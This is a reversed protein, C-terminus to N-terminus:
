KNDLFFGTGLNTLALKGVSYVSDAVAKVFEMDHSALGIAKDTRAIEKVLKALNQVNEPDLASTPEDLLLIQPELALARAIAVRQQQGGSLQQPYNQDLERIGLQELLLLVKERAKKPELKKVVTLPQMCNQLVTLHNFLGNDQFVLGVSSAREQASLSLLSLNNYTISGSNVPLLGALARLLTTKGVGSKGIFATITGRELTCSVNDLINNAANKDPSVSINRACLM